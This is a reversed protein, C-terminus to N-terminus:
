MVEWGHGNRKLQGKTMLENVYNGATSKPREIQRGIESLSADPNNVLFALILSLAEGKTMSKSRKGQHEKPRNKSAEIRAMKEAHKQEAELRAQEQVQEAELARQQFELRIREREQEARLRAVEKEQAAQEIRKLEAEVWDARAKSWVEVQEQHSRLENGFALSIVALASLPGFALAGLEWGGLGEGAKAAQTYNYTGSVIYSIVLGLWPAISRPKNIIALCEAILGAEIVLAAFFAQTPEAVLRFAHFAAFFLAILGSVVILGLLFIQSTPFPKPYPYLRNLETITKM